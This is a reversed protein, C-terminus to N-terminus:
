PRNKPLINQKEVSKCIQNPFASKMFRYVYRPRFYYSVYAREKLEHLKETSIRDHRYVNTWGTFHEWNHDFVRDKVQEFFETGPYPTCMTFQVGFTNLKKAYRITEKMGKVTDNPLGLIYNAVVRIGLKHCWRVIEEQQAQSPPMRKNGAVTDMSASEIGFECARLGARHLLKLLPIDLLDTRTEIHFKIDFGKRLIGRAINEARKMDCTFNPDRFAIGKANYLKVLYEIEDIVNEPDRSRYCSNVKYPCYNCGYPCGRSSLMSLTPKKRSIITYRYTGIPFSDWKPFPLEDLNEILGADIIGRPIEGKAIQPAINEVEGRVVFDAIEEYYQPVVSAFVGFYGVVGGTERAKRGMEKEAACDVISSEILYVDASAIENRLLRVSAGNKELISVLYALVVAPVDVIRKKAYELLRAGPSNGIDFVTGFGGAVDKLTCKHRSYVSIIAIRM